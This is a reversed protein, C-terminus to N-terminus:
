RQRELRRHFGDAGGIRGAADVDAVPQVVVDVTRVAGPHLRDVDRVAHDRDLLDAVGLALRVGADRGKGLDRGDTRASSDPRLRDPSRRLGCPRVLGSEYALVVAQVRDRVGLKTLMRAVHTKM